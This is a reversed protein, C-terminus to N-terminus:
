SFLKMDEQVDSLIMTRPNSEYDMTVDGILYIQVQLKLSEALIEFKNQPLNKSYNFSLRKQGITLYGSRTKTDIKSVTGKYTVNTITQFDQDSKLYMAEEKTVKLIEPTGSEGTEQLSISELLSEDSMLPEMMKGVSKIVTKNQLTRLDNLTINFTNNTGGVINISGDQQAVIKSPAKGELGKRVNIFTKLTSVITKGLTLGQNIEPLLPVVVAATQEIFTLFDAHLSGREFANINIKLIEDVENGYHISAIEYLAQSTAMITNAVDVADVSNEVLQGKFSLTFKYYDDM